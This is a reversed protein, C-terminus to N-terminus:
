IMMHLLATVILAQLVTNGKAKDIHLRKKMQNKKEEINCTLPFRKNSLTKYPNDNQKDETIWFYFYGDNKFCELM